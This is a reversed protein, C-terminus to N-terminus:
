VEKEESSNEGNPVGSIGLVQVGNWAQRASPIQQWGSSAYGSLTLVIGTQKSSLIGTTSGWGHIKLWTEATVNMVKAINERDEDTLASGDKQRRSGVTPLPQGEALEKQLEAPVELELLQIAHWCVERKCWETINQGQGSRLMEEYIKPMWLHITATLAPTIDQLTWISNLDLRSITRHAIYAMTYTVANARYASLELQTAIQEVHDFLIAKAILKKYYDVDPKWLHGQERKLRTMFSVYNKQAGRSVLHPLMDWSNLYKALDTKAFKQSSPVENQFRRQNSDTKLALKTVQYQGRSREYFWRTREGPAWTAESLRQVEVHYSDNSSFDAESVRNQTNAYRAIKPALEQIIGPAMVTIKAQVFIKSIDAKDKEKANHISAVTQGGNVIQLGYASKISLGDGGGRVLSLKEATASIGNNYALFRAPEKLITERIGRNVKGRAQLFSRVNLDLLRGGYEDYLSHLLIGPFIVLYVGYDAENKPMEICPLCRGLLAEFDVEVSEYPLQSAICRYLRQIDWLQYQVPCGNVPAGEELKRDLFLGNTILIVSLRRIDQKTEWLRQILSRQDTGEQMKSHLGGVALRYLRVARILAQEINKKAVNMLSGTQDYISIVLYAIGQEEDIGYGDCKIQGAETDLVLRCLHVDDLVGLDVLRNTMVETFAVEADASASAVNKTSQSRSAALDRIEADLQGAFHKLELDETM